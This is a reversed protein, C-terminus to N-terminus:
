GAHAVIRRGGNQVEGGGDANVHEHEAGRVAGVKGAQELAVDDGFDGLVERFVDLQDDVALANALAM